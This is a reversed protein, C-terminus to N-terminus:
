EAAQGRTSQIVKEIFRVGVLIGDEDLFDKEDGFGNDSNDLCTLCSVVIETYRHGMASPLNEKALDTLMRKIDFAKKKLEKMKLKEDIDLVSSPSPNPKYTVFSSWMGIELLCVGVSYVDHQMKYEEEPYVGQRRPHRYLNREWYSDGLFYSTGDAPRFTEFGVLFPTGLKSQGDQFILIIEPRINKHVFRCAHLSLVSRALVKALYLRDDLPYAQHGNVLIERLSRPQEIQPPIVFALEFSPVGADKVTKMIVGACSLLGSTTDEVDFSALLRALDRVTRQVTATDALRSPAFRDIILQRRGSRESSRWCSSYPISIRENVLDFDAPKFISVQQASNLSTGKWLLERSLRLTSVADNVPCTRGALREDVIPDSMRLILYWSPDFIDQWKKCDNITDVLCKKGLALNLKRIAGKKRMVSDMCVEEDHTGIFGDILVTAQQLKFQFQVLVTHLHLQYRDPLTEWISRLFVIQSEMKLWTHELRLMLENM